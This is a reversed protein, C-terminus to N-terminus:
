VIQKQYASYYTLYSEIVDVIYAAIRDRGKITLLYKKCEKKNDMFFNEFLAAPMDTRHVMQFNRQKIGRHHSEPFHKEFTERAIDALKHSKRSARKSIFVGSGSGGGADSHISSLFTNRQNKAHFNNARRVRENLHVDEQEPVLDFYPIGKFFLLELVRYKIQRNFEGEYITMGNPFSFQKGPTLYVNNVIGSHGNDIIAIPINALVQM